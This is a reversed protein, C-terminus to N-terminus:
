LVCGRVSRCNMNAKERFHFSLQKMGKFIIYDGQLFIASLLFKLLPATPRYTFFYTIKYKAFASM